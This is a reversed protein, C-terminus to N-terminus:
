LHLPQASGGQFLGTFFLKEAMPPFNTPIPVMFNVIKEHVNYRIKRGIGRIFISRFVSFDKTAESFDDGNNNLINDEAQAAPTGIVNVSSRRLRMRQLMRSFDRMHIEIQQSISQNFARLKSKSAAAGTSLQTKRQWRDVSNNRFPAFRTEGHWCFTWKENDNSTSLLFEFFVLEHVNM